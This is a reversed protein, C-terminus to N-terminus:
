YASEIEANDYGRSAGPLDWLFRRAFERREKLPAHARRGQVYLARINEDLEDNLRTIITDRIASEQLDEDAIYQGYLALGVDLAFGAGTSLPLLEGIAAKLVEDGLQEYFSNFEPRNGPYSLQTDGMHGQIVDANEVLFEVKLYTQIADDTAVQEDISVITEAANAMPISVHVDPRWGAALLMRLTRDSLERACRGFRNPSCANCALYTKVEALSAGREPRRTLSGQRDVQGGSSAGDQQVVHTLEHALLRKGADTEPRYNGSAFAIDSGLTFAEADISRAATDAEADTHVRVASFDRGFRSEFYSRTRTPLPRGGTLSSRIRAKAAGDVAGPSAGPSAGGSRRVAVDTADARDTVVERAVREAEREAPDGPQSVDLKPQVDGCEYCDKIAQNGAAAHTAGVPTRVAARANERERDTAEEHRSRAADADTQTRRM